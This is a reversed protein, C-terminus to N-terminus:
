NEPARGPSREIVACFAHLLDPDHKSGGERHLIDMIERHRRAHHYPRTVAIADYSDTLSIIRSYVPIRSGALGDPYGSGDFHEHHHRVVRAAERAEDMDIAALIREGILPHEKMATWETADFPAPKQLVRDPIGIKGVDHFEAGLALIDLERGTFDCHRGLELSLAVVRESHLRTHRDREGLAVALSHTLRKLTAFCAQTGTM